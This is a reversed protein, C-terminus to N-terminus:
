LEWLHGSLLHFSHLIDDLHKEEFTHWALPELVACRTAVQLRIGDPVINRLNSVRKITALASGESGQDERSRWNPEGAPPDIQQLAGRSARQPLPLRAQM